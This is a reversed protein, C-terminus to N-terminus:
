TYFVMHGGKKTVHATIIDRTNDGTQFEFSYAPIRGDADRGNNVKSVEAGKFDIFDRANNRAKEATVNKGTVGRPKARELHDSFPGDYILVPVEQMQSDVRRFSDDAGSLQGQSLNRNLGQRVETWSFSGAAAMRQVGGLERNLDQSKKYLESMTQRDRETLKKGQDRKTIAYAYDGGQTLFKSTQAVVQHSMPLQHLSSQATNANYWLDAFLNDMNDTSGSALGKSLLAEVNKTRQLSEYFAGNYKNVLQAEAVRREKLQFGGWVAALGFLVALGVIAYTERKKM